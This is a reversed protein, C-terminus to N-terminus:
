IRCDFKRDDPIESTNSVTVGVLFNNM